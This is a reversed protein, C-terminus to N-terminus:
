KILISKVHLVLDDFNVPKLYFHDCYSFDKQTDGNDGSVLILKASYLTDNKLQKFLDLGSGNPMNSDSIIVEYDQNKILELADTINSAVDIKFGDDEFFSVALELLDLEDDIFLIRAQEM